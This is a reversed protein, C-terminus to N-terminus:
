RPEFSSVFVAVIHPFKVAVLLKCQNNLSSLDHFQCQKESLEGDGFIFGRHAVTGQFHLELLM